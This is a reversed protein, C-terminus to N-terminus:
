ALVKGMILDAFERVGKLLGQIAQRIEDVTFTSEGGINRM